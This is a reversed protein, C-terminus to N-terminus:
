FAFNFNGTAVNAAFIIIQGLPTGFYEILYNRDIGPTLLVLETTSAMGIECLKAQIQPFATGAATM